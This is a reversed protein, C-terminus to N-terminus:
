VHPMGQERQTRNADDNVSASERAANREGNATQISSIKHMNAARARWKSAELTCCAKSVNHASQMTSAQHAREPQKESVTPLFHAAASTSM